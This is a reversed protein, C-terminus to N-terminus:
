VQRMNTAGQKTFYEMFPPKKQILFLLLNLSVRLRMVTPFPLFNLSLRLPTVIRKEIPVFSIVIIEIITNTESTEM